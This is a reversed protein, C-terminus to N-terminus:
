GDVTKKSAESKHPKADSKVVIRYTGFGLARKIGILAIKVKSESVHRNWQALEKDYYPPKQKGMKLDELFDPLDRDLLGVKVCGARSALAGCHRLSKRRPFFV